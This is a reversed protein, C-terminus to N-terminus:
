YFLNILACVEMLNKETANKWDKEVEIHDQDVEESDYRQQKKRVELM